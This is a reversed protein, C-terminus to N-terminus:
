MREWRIVDELSRKDPRPDEAPHGVAVLALVTHERPVGLADALAAAYPQPHGAVWCSGLGHARAANLLNLTAASGDEVWYDVNRCVVAVCVPAQAIFAAHGTIEALRARGAEETVVIFTWPQNNMATPALRACDVIDEVVARSVPDPRYSRISRRTKLCTIADM